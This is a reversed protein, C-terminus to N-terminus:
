GYVLKLQRAVEGAQVRNNVNLKRYLNKVHGKVTNISVVLEQAIEPNSHGAVLLALVRQEQASLPELLASVAGSKDISLPAAFAHVISRAYTRLPKETISPLLSRLLAALPEGEDLFLRMFGENRAQSLVEYLWQRAKQEQGEAAHALAILLQVELARLVHKGELAVILLQGLLRLAAAPEGRALLLRAQLLQLAQRYPPSLEKEYNTLINLTRRAAVLDSDVIQLRTQWILVDPILQRINPASSAQLRAFLASLQQQVLAVEGRAHLVLLRLLEGTTRTEEEWYIFYGSYTYESVEHALQEARELENREYALRAL